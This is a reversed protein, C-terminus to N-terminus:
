QDENENNEQQNEIDKTECWQKLEQLKEESLVRQHSLLDFYQEREESLIHELFEHLVTELSHWQVLNPQWNLRASLQLFCKLISQEIWCEDQPKQSLNIIFQWLLPQFHTTLQPYADMYITLNQITEQDDQTIAQTLLQTVKDTAYLGADGWSVLIESSTGQPTEGDCGYPEDLAYLLQQKFWEERVGLASLTRMAVMPVYWPEDDHLLTRIKQMVQHPIAIQPCKALAHLAADFVDQNGQADAQIFQELIFKQLSEPLATTRHYLCILLKSKLNISDTAQFVEPIAHLLEPFQNYFHQIYDTPRLGEHAFDCQDQTFLQYFIQIDQVKLHIASINMVLPFIEFPFEKFAQWVLEINQEVFPSFASLWYNLYMLEQLSQTENVDNNFPADQWSKVLLHMDKEDLFKQNVDIFEEAKKMNLNLQQQYCESIQHYNQIYLSLFDSFHQHIEPDKKLLVQWANVEFFDAQGISLIQIQDMKEVNFYDQQQLIEALLDSAQQLEEMSTLSMKSM